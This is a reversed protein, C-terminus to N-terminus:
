TSESRASRRKARIARARQDRQELVVDHFSDTVSKAISLAPHMQM